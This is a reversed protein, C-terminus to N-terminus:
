SLYPYILWLFVILLQKTSWLIIFCLLAMHLNWSVNQVVAMNLMERVDYHPCHCRLDGAKHNNVWGNIWACILSFMLARRRQDKHPFNVLSWHIGWVFPWYCLFHKWKIVDDHHLWTMGSDKRHGRNYTVAKSTVESNGPAVVAMSLYNCENYLPSSMVLENWFKATCDKFNPFSYTIGEWVENPM